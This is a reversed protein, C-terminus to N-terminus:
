KIFRFPFLFQTFELIQSHHLLKLSVIYISLRASLGVLPVLTCELCFYTYYSHIM